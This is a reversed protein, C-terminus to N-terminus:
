ARDELEHAFHCAARHDSSTTEVMPPRVSKCISRGQSLSCRPYFACGSIVQNLNPPQGPIPILPTSLTSRDPLSNLLGVTYPHRPRHFITEVDGTEVVRGAYMVLVRDAMEAIVGLDHTILITAADVKRETRLVDLIQAQVTVDLATTPEDAILITPESANAIAIMARQRMGGSFEHPYQRSRELPNPVGVSDLLEVVRAAVEARSLDRESQLKISEAIQWGIKQVPNLSTMPDQFIVGIERGRVARLESPSLARIDVGKYRIEGSVIHGPPQPILGILSLVTVSKGSGSEGVIGLTEGAFLEFDVGNVARVATGKHRFEVCLGKVSLLPETRDSGSNPSIM